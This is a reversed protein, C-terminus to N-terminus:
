VQYASGVASHKRCVWARLSVSDFFLFTYTPNFSLSIHPQNAICIWFSTTEWPGDWVATAILFMCSLTIAKIEYKISKSESWRMLNLWNRFINSCRMYVSELLTAGSLKFPFCESFSWMVESELKVVLMLCSLKYGVALSMLIGKNCCPNFKLLAHNFYEKCPLLIWTFCLVCAKLSYHESVHKASLPKLIPIARIDAEDWKKNYMWIVSLVTVIFTFYRSQYM